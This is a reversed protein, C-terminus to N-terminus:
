CRAGGVGPATGEDVDATDDAAQRDRVHAVAALLRLAYAEAVDADLREDSTEVDGHLPTAYVAPVPDRAADPAARTPGEYWRVYGAHLPSEPEFGSPAPLLGALVRAVPPAGTEGLAAALRARYGALAAIRADLAALARQGAEDRTAQSLSSWDGRGAWQGLSLGVSSHAVREFDRALAQRAPGALGSM